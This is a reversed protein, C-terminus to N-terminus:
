DALAGGPGRVSPYTFRSPDQRETGEPSGVPLQTDFGEAAQAEHDSALDGLTPDSFGYGGTGGDRVQDYPSSM